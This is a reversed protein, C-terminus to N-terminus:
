HDGLELEDLYRSCRRDDHLPLADALRVQRLKEVGGEGAKVSGDGIPRDRGRSRRKSQIQAHLVGEVQFDPERPAQDLRVLIQEFRLEGCAVDGSRLVPAAEVPHLQM